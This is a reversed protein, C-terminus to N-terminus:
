GRDDVHELIQERRDIIPQLLERIRANVEDPSLDETPGIAAHLLEETCGLAEFQTRSKADGVDGEAPFFLNAIEEDTLRDFIQHFRERAAKQGAEELRRLRGRRWGLSGM